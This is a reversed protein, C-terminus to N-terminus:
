EFSYPVGVCSVGAAHPGAVTYIYSWLADAGGLNPPLNPQPENCTLLSASAVPCHAPGIWNFSSGSPGTGSCNPGSNKYFLKRTAGLCNGSYKDCTEAGLAPDTFPGKLCRENMKTSNCNVMVQCYVTNTMPPMGTTASFQAGGCYDRCGVCGSNPEVAGAVPSACQISVLAGARLSNAVDPALKTPTNAASTISFVSALTALTLLSLTFRNM